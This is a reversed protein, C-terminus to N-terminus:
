LFQAILKEIKKKLVFKHNEMSLVSSHNKTSATFHSLAGCESDSGIKLTLLRSCISIGTWMFTTSFLFFFVSDRRICLQVYLHTKSQICIIIHCRFYFGWWVYPCVFTIAFWVLSLNFVELIEVQAKTWSMTKRNQQFFRNRHHRMSSFFLVFWVFWVISTSSHLQQKEDSPKSQM